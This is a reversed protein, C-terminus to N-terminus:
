GINWHSSPLYSANVCLIKLSFTKSIGIISGAIKFLCFCRKKLFLVPLYFLDQRPTPVLTHPLYLSVTCSPSRLAFIMYEHIYISFHSRNFSNWSHPFPSL